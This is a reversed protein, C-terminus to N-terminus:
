RNLKGSFYDYTEKLTTHYEGAIGVSIWEGKRLRTAYTVTGSKISAQIADTVEVNKNEGNIHTFVDETLIYFASLALNSPPDPSKEVVGTVRDGELEITGYRSPNDVEFVALRNGGSYSEIIKKEMDKDILIGDGANLVFPGRISNRAQYVADGFGRKEKQYLMNVDPFMNKLYYETIRDGPDIVVYIDRIGSYMMRYIACDIVPRLLLKSDRVDYLSLMEKRLFRSTGSRTGLGAATILGDM